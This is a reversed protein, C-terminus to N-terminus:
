EGNAFKRMMPLLANGRPICLTDFLKDRGTLTELQGIAFIDHAANRQGTNVFFDYGLGKLLEELAEASGGHRQLHPDSVELYLMPKHEHVFACTEIAVQELGEIDVKIFDPKTQTSQILADLSTVPAPSEGSASSGPTINFGGTNGDVVNGRYDADPLGIMNHHVDVNSFRLRNVNNKLLNFTRKNAEVAVVTGTAGVKRATTLAFTGIHAGIDFATMGPSLLCTAFAFEPRTHNGFKIIQDTILDDKYARMMGFLSDVEVIHDHLSLTDAMGITQTIM